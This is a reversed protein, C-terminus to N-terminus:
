SSARQFVIYIYIDYNSFDVTAIKYCSAFKEGLKNIKFLMLAGTSM